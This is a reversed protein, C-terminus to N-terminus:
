AWIKRLCDPFAPFVQKLFSQFEPSVSTKILTIKRSMNLLKITNKQSQHITMEQKYHESLKTFIYDVQRQIESISKSNMLRKVMNVDDFLKADMTVRIEGMVNLMTNLLGFIRCKVIQLSPTTKLINNIIVDNLIEGAGKYDKNIICNTFQREKNFIVSEELGPRGFSFLTDFHLVPNIDEVLMKYEVVEIAESYANAISSIKTHIGSIAVSVTLGFKNELLKIAKLAVMEIDARIKATM